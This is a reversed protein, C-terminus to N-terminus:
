IFLSLSVTLDIKFRFLFVFRCDIGEFCGFLFYIVAAVEASLPGFAGTRRRLVAGHPIASGRVVGSAPTPAM